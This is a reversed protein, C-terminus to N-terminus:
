LGPPTNQGGEPGGIVDADYGYKIAEDATMPREPAGGGYEWAAATYPNSEHEGPQVAVSDGNPYVVFSISYGESWQVTTGDHFLYVGSVEDPGTLVSEVELSTPKFQALREFSKDYIM